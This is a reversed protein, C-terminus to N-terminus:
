QVVGTSHPSCFYNFTGVENFTHEFVAGSDMNGSDFRSGTDGDDPNGSTVSHVANDLNTWRVTDGSLITISGPNMEFNMISVEHVTGEGSGDDVLIDAASRPLLKYAGFSYNLVGTLLTFRDDLAPLPDLLYLLDDVLFTGEVQFENFNNPALTVTVDEIQVLTSEWPEATDPTSLAAANSSRPTPPVGTGTATVVSALITSLSLGDATRFSETYFGVVDVLSGVVVGSPAISAADVYIGSWPGGEPSQIFFYGNRGVGVVVAGSIQVAAGISPRGAEPMRLQPITVALGSSPNCVRNPRGPSGQDGTFPGALDPSDCWAAGLNNDDTTPDFDGSLQASVGAVTPFDAQNYVVTDIVTEGSLLTITDGGSGNGLNFSTYVYDVPVGGNTDQDANLGLVAFAGPALRWSGGEAAITHGDGGTLNADELRLGNLELVHNSVNRLEIWEGQNDDVVAPNKMFETILLDGAVPTLNDSVCAAGGEPSADDCMGAAAATARCQLTDGTADGDTGDVAFGECAALCTAEGDYIADEGTCNTLADACYADCPTAVYPVCAEGGDAAANACVPTFLNLYSARCQLTDGATDGNMGDTPFAACATLCADADAYIADDGTCTALADGCFVECPTPPEDACVGAGDPGAHPCHFAPDTMAPAGAHYIRCELTDGSVDGEAGPTTFEACATQCEAETAYLLNGGTCNALVLDCYADCRTPQNPDVCVGGGDPAAHPCHTAPDAAAPDGAHYTRCQLTDGDADGDNGDTPLAACATQCEADDAYVANDGTCNALVLGCYADCPTDLQEVCVGGGDVGAHPCHTTPDAAAPDGAHYTRCALSDGSTDGEAGLNEYTNCTLRCDANNNFQANDGTCNADLADCYEACAPSCAQAVDFGSLALPTATACDLAGVALIQQRTNETQCAAECNVKLGATLEAGCAATLETCASLTGCVEVCQAVPDPTNNATNNATNNNATNNNATNNNATNNNVTNNNVTNNNVTNNNATNNNVTNNNATNNDDGGQEDDDSCAASTLLAFVLGLLGLLHLSRKRHM